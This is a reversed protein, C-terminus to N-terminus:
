VLAAKRPGRYSKKVGYKPGESGFILNSAFYIQQRLIWKILRTRACLVACHASLADRFTQTASLIQGLWTQKNSNYSITETPTISYSWDQVRVGCEASVKHPLRGAEDVSTKWIHKRLSRAKSVADFDCHNCKNLAIHCSKEMTRKWDFPHLWITQRLPSKEM